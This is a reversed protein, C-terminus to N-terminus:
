MANLKKKFIKLILYTLGGFIALFTWNNQMIQGLEGNWWLEIWEFIAFLLTLAFFGNKEQRLVKWLNFKSSSKKYPGLRPVFVPIEVAWTEYVSGFKNKLFHEEAYIIREYYLYFLLTFVVVLWLNQTWLALSLYMLYNGLYLPNRMLSYLGSSNISEAVQEETNRGSTSDASFGVVHARIFLGLLGVVLCLWKHPTYTYFSNTSLDYVFVGLSLFIALIPLTGRYKFLFNGQHLLKDKLLM